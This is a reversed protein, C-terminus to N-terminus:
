EFDFSCFLKDDIYATLGRREKRNKEKNKHLFDNM